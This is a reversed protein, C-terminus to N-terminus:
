ILRKIQEYVKKASDGSAFNKIKESLKRRKNEDEILGQLEVKLKNYLDESEEILIAGGSDSIAKANEYQHNATVNPSPILISAVKAYSLESLTLAGSRTIAIDAAMLATPMDEIYPLIHCGRFGKKLNREDLLSYFREGSAHIHRVRKDKVSVDNMLKVMAENLTSAGGSGGFSVIFVEGEKIGLKKRANQRSIVAFDNRLPNGVVLTKASKPLKKLAREYGLLVTSCKSALIKTVLGPIANSEHILTPIRLKKAATLVPWSVYGGTGLVADPSFEKIIKKSKKQASLALTLAKINGGFLKRSFGKVKLLETKLGLKEVARNEKGGDRGIFLIESDPERKMIEEAIAVAPNVHGATGGGTIIIKM